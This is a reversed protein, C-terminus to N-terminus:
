GRAGLDEFGRILEELMRQRDRERAAERGLKGDLFGKLCIAFVVRTAQMRVSLRFPDLEGIPWSMIEYVDDLSMGFLTRDERGAQARAV